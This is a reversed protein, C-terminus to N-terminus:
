EHDTVVLIVGILVVVIGLAKGWTLSEGFLLRGFLLTWLTCVAKNAFAFNLPMRKLVQQWLISYVGLAGVELALFVLTMMWQQGSMYLGAVKACVSALAYILLTGHLLLMSRANTKAM